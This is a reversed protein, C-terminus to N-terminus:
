ENSEGLKIFLQLLDYQGIRYYTEYPDKGALRDANVETELVEIIEKGVPSNFIKSLTNKVRERKAQANSLTSM